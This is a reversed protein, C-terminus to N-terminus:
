MDGRQVVPPTKSGGMTEEESSGGLTGRNMARGLLFGSTGHGQLTVIVTSHIKIDGFLSINTETIQQVADPITGTPKTGELIGQLVGEIGSDVTLFVLDATDKTMTHKVETLIRNVGEYEIIKGPRLDWSRPHGASTKNGSLLNNAKLINRAVRRAGENTSVSFDEIVQPDQQIDGGRGSQREGDSVKAYATDNLSLGAGQVVVTNSTNDVPNTGAPGTRTNADVFRGAEGFNFPVYLLSGFRDFYVIHNDHRGLYRLATVLNVGYFDTAVFTTSQKRRGKNSRTPTLPLAISVSTMSDLDRALRMAMDTTRLGVDAVQGLHGRTSNFGIDLLSRNQMNRVSFRTGENGSSIDSVTIREAPNDAGFLLPPTNIAADGNLQANAYFLATKSNHGAAGTHQLTLADQSESITFTRETAVAYTAEKRQRVTVKQQNSGQMTLEGLHLANDVFRPKRVQKMVVDSDGTLRQQALQPMM